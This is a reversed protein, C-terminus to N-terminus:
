RSPSPATSSAARARSSTGARRYRRTFPTRRAGIQTPDRSFLARSSFVADGVRARAGRQVLTLRRKVARERESEDMKPTFNTTGARTLEKIDELKTHLGAGISAAIAAGLATSEGM